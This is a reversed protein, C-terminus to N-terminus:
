LKRHGGILKDYLVRGLSSVMLREVELEVMKKDAESDYIFGIGMGAPQDDTAQDPSVTWHVKGLLVLRKELTPVILKFLFETGAELPRDTCIFTGGQSINQTYDAFFSNLRQYEVKLEITHRPNNRRDQQSEDKV